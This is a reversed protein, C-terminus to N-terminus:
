KFKRLTYKHKTRYSSTVPKNRYPTTVKTKRLHLSRRRRRSHIRRRGGAGPGQEPPHGVVAEAVVGRRLRDLADSGVADRLRQLLISIGLFQKIRSNCMMVGDTHPINEKCYTEHGDVIVGGHIKERQIRYAESFLQMLVIINEETLGPMDLDILDEISTQTEDEHCVRANHANLAELFGNTHKFDGSDVDHYIFTLVGCEEFNDFIEDSVPIYIEGTISDDELTFLYQSLIYKERETYTNHNLLVYKLFRRYRENPGRGMVNTCTGNTRHYIWFNTNTFIREITKSVQARFDCIYKEAIRYIYHDSFSILFRIFIYNIEDSPLKSFFLNEIEHKIKDYPVPTKGLQETVNSIINRAREQRKRLEDRDKFRNPVAVLDKASSGKGEKGKHQRSM